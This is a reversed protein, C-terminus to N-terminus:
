LSRDYLIIRLHRASDIFAQIESCDSACPLTLTELNTCVRLCSWDYKAMDWEIEAFRIHLQLLSNPLYPVVADHQAYQCDPSFELETLRSTELLQQRSSSTFFHSGFSCFSLLTDPLCLLPVMGSRHKVRSLEVKTLCTSSSLDVSAVNFGHLCLEELCMGQGRDLSVNSCQVPMFRNALHLLRLSHCQELLSCLGEALLSSSYVTSDNHLVLEALSCFCFSLSAYYSLDAMSNLDAHIHLKKSSIHHGVYSVQLEQTAIAYLVTSEDFLNCHSYRLIQLAPWGSFTVFAQASVSVGHQLFPEVDRWHCDALDLCTLQTLTAINSHCGTITSGQFSLHRLGDLDTICVAGLFVDSFITCCNRLELKTLHQLCQGLPFPLLIDNKPLGVVEIALAKLSTPCGALSHDLAELRVGLTEAQTEISLSELQTLRKLCPFVVDTAHGELGTAQITLHQLGVAATKHIYQHLIDTFYQGVALTDCELPLHLFCSAGRAKLDETDEMTTERVSSTLKLHSFTSRSRLFKRWYKHHQVDRAHLHLVNIHTSHVIDRWSVCVCAAACNDLANHQAQFILSLVQQLVSAWDSQQHDMDAVQMATASLSFQVLGLTSCVRLAHKYVCCSLPCDTTGLLCAYGIM